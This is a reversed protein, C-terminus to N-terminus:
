SPKQPKVNAKCKPCPRILKLLKSQIELRTVFEPIHAIFPNLTYWDRNERVFRHGCKCKYTCQVSVWKKDFTQRTIM